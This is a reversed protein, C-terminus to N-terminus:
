SEAAKPPRGRRPKGANEIDKLLKQYVPDGERALREILEFKENQWREKDSQPAVNGIAVNAPIHYDKGQILTGVMPLEQSGGKPRYREFNAVDDQSKGDMYGSANLRLRINKWELIKEKNRLEWDIHKDVAGTPRKRMEEQTPMGATFDERLQKERAVARDVDEMAYTKPSQTELQHDLARLQRRMAGVDQIQSRVHMPADLTNQLRRREEMMDDIQQPRLLPKTDETFQEM